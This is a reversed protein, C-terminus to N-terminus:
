RRRVSRLLEELLAKMDSQQDESYYWGGWSDRQYAAAIAEHKALVERVRREVRAPAQNLFLDIDAPSLQAAWHEKAQATVVQSRIRDVVANWENRRALWLQARFGAWFGILSSLLGVFLGNSNILEVFSEIPM